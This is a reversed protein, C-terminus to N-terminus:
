SISSTTGITAESGRDGESLLDDLFEKVGAVQYQVSSLLDDLASINPFAWLRAGKENVFELIIRTDWVMPRTAPEGGFAGLTVSNFTESISQRRPRKFREKYLQLHRGNYTTTFIPSSIYEDNEEILQQGIMEYDWHLKGEQTLRLLKVVADVWKDREDTM